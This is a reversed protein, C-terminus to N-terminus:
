TMLHPPRDMIYNELQEILFEKDSIVERVVDRISVIGLLADSDNNDLVPLHRLHRRTMLAMCDEVTQDPRVYLVQTTMIDRVLTDHANKERVTLKRTLDRETVIGVVQGQDTVVLAGINHDAMLQAAAFATADPAITWVGKHKQELLRRVNLM